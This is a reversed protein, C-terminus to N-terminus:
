GARTRREAPGRHQPGGPGVAHCLPRAGGAVTLGGAAAVVGVSKLFDRRDLGQPDQPADDM